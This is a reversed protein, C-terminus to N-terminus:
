RPQEIQWRNGSYMRKCEKENPVGSISVWQWRGGLQQLNWCSPTTPRRQAYQNGAAITTLLGVIFLIRVLNLKM